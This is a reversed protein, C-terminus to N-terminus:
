RGLLVFGWYRAGAGLLALPGPGDGPAPAAYSRLGEDGALKLWRLMEAGDGAILVSSAGAARAAALAGRLQATEGGPEAAVTLGDEAVGRERLATGLGESGPGVLVLRDGYGRRYLEFCHDVFSQPPVAPAVAVILDVNRSEDRGAQVAAAGVSLAMAILSTVALTVALYAIQRRV